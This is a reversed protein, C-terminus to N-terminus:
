KLLENITGVFYEQDLPKTLIRDAGLKKANALYVHSNNAAGSIAIIPVASDSQRIEMILGLGEKDPMVIDTVILDFKEKELISAALAGNKASIVDHQEQELWQAVLNLLNADDDVLLIKSM